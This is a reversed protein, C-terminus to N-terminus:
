SSRSAGQDRSCSRCRRPARRNRPVMEVALVIESPKKVLLDFALQGSSGPGITPVFLGDRLYIIKSYGGEGIGPRIPFSPCVADTTSVVFDSFPWRDGGCADPSHLDKRVWLSNTGDDSLLLYAGEALERSTSSDKGTLFLYESNRFDTVYSHIDGRPLISADEPVALTVRRAFREGFFVYDRFDLGGELAISANGPVLKEILAYNFENVWPPPIREASFLGAGDLARLMGAHRSVAVMVALGMLIITAALLSRVFSRTGVLSAIMPFALTVPIIYYRGKYPTWNQLASHAVLFLL